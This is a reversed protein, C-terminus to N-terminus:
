QLLDMNSRVPPNPDLRTLLGGARPVNKVFTAVIQSRDYGRDRDFCLRERYESCPRDRAYGLIFKPDLVDHAEHQCPSLTLGPVRRCKRSAAASMTGRPLTGIYRGVVSIVDIAGPGTVDPETSRQVWLTGGWTARLSAIVPVEPFFRMNEVAAVRAAAMARTLAEMEATPEGGGLSASQRNRAQEELRRDREARRIAETAPLPPIPKHLIRTVWAEVLTRESM